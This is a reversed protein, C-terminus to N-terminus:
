SVRACITKNATKATIEEQKREFFTRPPGWLGNIVRIQRLLQKITAAFVWPALAQLPNGLNSKGRSRPRVETPVELSKGM